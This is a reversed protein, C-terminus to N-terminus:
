RMVKGKNIHVSQVGQSKQLSAPITGRCGEAAKFIGALSDFTPCRFVLPYRSFEDRETERSKCHAKVDCLSQAPSEAPFTGKTKKGKKELSPYYSRKLPLNGPSVIARRRTRQGSGTDRCQPAAPHPDSTILLQQRSRGSGERQLHPRHQRQVMSQQQGKGRLPPLLGMTQKPLHSPRSHSEQLAPFHHCM